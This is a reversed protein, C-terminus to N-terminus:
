RETLLKADLFLLPVKKTTQRERFRNWRDNEPAKVQFHM